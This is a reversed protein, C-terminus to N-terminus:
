PYKTEKIATARICAFPVPMKLVGEREALLNMVYILEPELEAWMEATTVQRCEPLFWTKVYYHALFAEANNFSMWFIDKDVAEVFFKEDNLLAVMSNAPMRKLEILDKVREIAKIARRKSLLEILSQYFPMFMDPLQSCFLLEGGPKTVRHIEKLAVAKEAIDTFGNNSVVLDFTNQEFPLEYVSGRLPMANQIGRLEAKQMCREVANTWADVGYVMSSEGLRSAIELMPFGTSLGIDLVTQDSKYNIKELLRQGFPASWFPLDDYATIMRQDQLHEVESLISSTFSITTM